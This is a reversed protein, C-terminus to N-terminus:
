GVEELQCGAKALLAGIHDRKGADTSLAEKSYDVVQLGPVIINGHKRRRRGESLDAFSPFRIASCLSDAPFMCDACTVDPETVSM